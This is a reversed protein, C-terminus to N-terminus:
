LAHCHPLNFCDRAKDIEFSEKSSRESLDTGLARESARDTVSQRAPIRERVVRAIASQFHGVIRGLAGDARQDQASFIIEERTRVAASNSGCLHVREDLSGLEVPEVWFGVQAVDDRADGIVRDVSDVLQERPRPFGDCIFQCCSNRAYIQMNM